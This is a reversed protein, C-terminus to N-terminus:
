RGTFAGIVPLLNGDFDFWALNEQSSLFNTTAIYDPEWWFVGIGRGNPVARVRRVLEALYAKQGEPTAPYGPILQNTTGVTNAQADKWGLTWPYSTEVIVADKDYRAALDALNASVDDLNKSNWFSYYSLGIVDFPVGRARAQDFWSRCTANDSGSHLHLMIRIGPVAARAGAIGAKLYSALRQWPEEAAAAPYSYRMQQDNIQLVLPSGAPASINGAAGGTLDLLLDANGDGWWTGTGNNDVIKFVSGNTANTLIAQWTWNSVLTMPVAKSWNDWDGKVVPQWLTNSFGGVRGSEWLMGPTIENGIQVMDPTAGAATFAALSDRTYTHVANSLATGALNTWASPSWQQGPDAWWDSYHIDLLFQMGLAKVRKALAVTQALDCWGGHAAPNHWLRLRIWNIGNAQLLAPLDRAVGGERFVAGKSELEPLFSIDAGAMPLLTTPKGSGGDTSCALLVLILPILFRTRM